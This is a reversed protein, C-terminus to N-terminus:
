NNLGNEKHLKMNLSSRYLQWRLRLFLCGFISLFCTQFFSAPSSNTINSRVRRFLWIQQPLNGHTWKTQPTGKGSVEGGQVFDSKLWWSIATLSISPFYSILAFSRSRYFTIPMAMIVASHDHQSTETSLAVLFHQFISLYWIDSPIFYQEEKLVFACHM